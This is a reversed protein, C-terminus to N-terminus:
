GLPRRYPLSREGSAVAPPVPEGLREGSASPAVGPSEKRGCARSAIRLVRALRAPGDVTHQEYASRVDGDASWGYIVSAFLPKGALYLEEADEIFGAKWEAIARRGDPDSSAGAETQKIQNYLGALYSWQASFRAYFAAYTAAFMTGFWPLNGVLARRAAMWTPNWSRDPDVVAMSVLTVVYLELAVLLSRALIASGGNRLTGKVLGEWSFLDVARQWRHALWEGM